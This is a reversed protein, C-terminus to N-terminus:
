HLAIEIIMTTVSSQILWSVNQRVALYVKTLLLSEELLNYKEAEDM